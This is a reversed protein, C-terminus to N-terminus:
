VPFIPLCLVQNAVKFAIPFNSELDGSEIMPSNPLPHFYKRALVGHSKLKEYLPDCSIPYEGNVLIPFYSYNPVIEPRYQYLTIGVQDSLRTRYNSDINKRETILSKHIEISM